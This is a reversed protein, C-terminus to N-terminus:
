RDDKLARTIHPMLSKAFVAHGLGNWHWDFEWEFHEGHAQYATDFVPQLDLVVFGLSSSQALTQARMKEFFSNRAVDGNVDGYTLHRNGEVAIVIKSAPLGSASPLESLFRDIATLSDKVRSPDAAVETNGLYNPSVVNMSATSSITGPQTLRGVQVNTLLYM